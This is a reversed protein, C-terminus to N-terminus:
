VLWEFGSKEFICFGFVFGIKLGMFEWGFVALQWTIRDIFEFAGSPQRVGPRKANVPATSKAGANQLAHWHPM